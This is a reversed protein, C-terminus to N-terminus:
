IINIIIINENNQYLKSNKKISSINYANNNPSLNNELVDYKRTYNQKSKNSV